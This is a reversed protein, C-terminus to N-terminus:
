PSRRRRSVSRSSASTATRTTRRAPSRRSGHAAAHAQLRDRFRTRSADHRRRLGRLQELRDADGLRRHSGNGCAVNRSSPPRLLRLSRRAARSPTATSRTASRRTRRGRRERHRHDDHAVPQVSRWSGHADVHRSRRSPTSNIGTQAADLGHDYGDGAVYPPRRTAAAARATSRVDTTM